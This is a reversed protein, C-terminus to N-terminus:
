KFNTEIQYFLQGLNELIANEDALYRGGSLNHEAGNPNQGYITFGAATKSIRIKSNPMLPNEAEVTDGNSMSYIDLDRLTNGFITSGLATSLYQVEQQQGSSSARGSVVLENIGNVLAETHVAVDQKTDEAYVQIQKGDKTKLNIQKVTKGGVGPTATMKISELSVQNAEEASLGETQTLYTFLDVGQGDVAMHLVDNVRGKYSNTYANNVDAFAGGDLVHYSLSIPSEKLQNEVKNQSRIYAGVAYNLDGNSVGAGSKQLETKFKDISWGKSLADRMFKTMDEKSNWPSQNLVGPRGESTNWDIQDLPSTDLKFQQGINDLRQEANKISRTTNSYAKSSQIFSMASANFEDLDKGSLGSLNVGLDKGLAEMNLGVINGSADAVQYKRWNAAVKNATTLSLQQGGQLAMKQIMGALAGKQKQINGDIASAQQQLNELATGYNELTKTSINGGGVENVLTLGSELKKKYDEVAFSNATKNTDFKTFAYKLAIGYLDNYINQQAVEAWHAEKTVEKGDKDLTKYKVKYTEPDIGQERLQRATWNLETQIDQQLAKDANIASDMVSKVKDPTVGYENYSTIYDGATDVWNKLTSDAIGTMMKNVSDVRHVQDYYSVDGPIYTPDAVMRDIENQFLVGRHDGYAVNAKAKESLLKDYAEKRKTNLDLVGKAKTYEKQLNLLETTAEPTTLDGMRTSLEQLKENMPDVVSKAREYDPLDKRYMPSFHTDSAELGQAQLMMQQAAARRSDQQAQKQQVQQIIAEYPLQTPVYQSQYQNFVPNLFRNVPM